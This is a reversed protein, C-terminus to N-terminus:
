DAEQAERIAWNTFFRGAICSVRNWNSPRSSGSSFPNAIWELIRPSGKHSLQYLIQRCPPIGPNSGQTPFIGQLLCLSGVGTNKGPSNWPSYQGHPWLSDSVVSHSETQKRNVERPQDEDALENDKSQRKGRVDESIPLIKKTRKGSGCPVSDRHSSCNRM